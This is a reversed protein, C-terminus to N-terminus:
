LSKHSLLRKETYRDSTSNREPNGCQLVGPVRDQTYREIPQLEKKEDNLGWPYQYTGNDEADRDRTM